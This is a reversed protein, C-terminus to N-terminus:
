GNWWDDDAEPEEAPDLMIMGGDFWESIDFKDLTKWVKKQNRNLQQNIIADAFDPFGGDVNECMTLWQEWRDQWGTALGEMIRDRQEPTLFLVQDVRSAIDMITARKRYDDKRSREEVYTTWQDTTLVQKLVKDLRKRVVHRPDYEMRLKEAREDDNQMLHDLKTVKRVAENLAAVSEAKIVPRQSPTLDCTQRIFELEANVIPTVFHRAELNNQLGPLMPALFNDGIVQMVQNTLVEFEVPVKPPTFAPDAVDSGDSEPLPVPVAGKPVSVTAAEEGDSSRVGAILLLMLGLSISSKMMVARVSQDDASVVATFSEVVERFRDRGPMANSGISINM